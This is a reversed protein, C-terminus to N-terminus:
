RLLLGGSMMPNPKSLLDLFPSKEREAGDDGISEWELGAIRDIVPRTAISIWGSVLRLAAPASLPASYLLAGTSFGTLDVFSRLAPKRRWPLWMARRRMSCGAGPKLPTRGGGSRTCSRGLCPTACM